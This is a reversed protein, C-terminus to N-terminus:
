KRNDETIRFSLEETIISKTNTDYQYIYSDSSDKTPNPIILYESKIVNDISSKDLIVLSDNIKFTGRFDEGGLGSGNTIKYTNDERLELGVGNYGGDYFAKIIIPSSDRLDLKYNIGFILVIFFLGIFTSLFSKIRNSDFFECLDKYLNYIFIVLFIFGAILYPFFDFIFSEDATSILRISIYLGVIILSIIRILHKNRQLSDNM